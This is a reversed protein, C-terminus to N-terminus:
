SAGYFARVHPHRLGAAGSRRSISKPKALMTRKCVAPRSFLALEWVHVCVHEWVNVCVLAGVCVCVCAGVCVCECMSGCMCM